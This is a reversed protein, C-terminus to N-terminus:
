RQSYQLTTNRYLQKRKISNKEKGDKKKQVIKYERITIKKNELRVEESDLEKFCRFKKINIHNLNM